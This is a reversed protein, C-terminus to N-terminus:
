KAKCPQDFYTYKPDGFVISSRNGQGQRIVQNCQKRDFYNTYTSQYAQLDNRIPFLREKNAPPMRIASRTHVTGPTGFHARSISITEGVYPDAGVQRSSKPEIRDPRSDKIEQRTYHPFSTATTSQYGTDYEGFSIKSITMQAGPDPHKVTQPSYAHYVASSTTGCTDFGYHSADGFALNSM